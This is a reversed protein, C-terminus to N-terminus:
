LTRLAEFVASIEPNHAVGPVRSEAAEILPKIFAHYKRGIALIRALTIHRLLLDKEEFDQYSRVLGTFILTFLDATEQIATELQRRNKEATDTKGLKKAIALEMRVAQSRELSKRAFSNIVYWVTGGSYIQPSRESLAHEVVARPTVIERHLLSEITIELRQSSNRWFQFVCRAVLKAFSHAEEEDAPRLRAFIKEYGDLMKSMHTPTKAGNQLVATVFLEVVTHLHWPESPLEGFEDEEVDKKVKMVRESTSKPNTDADEEHKVEENVRIAALDSRATGKSDARQL